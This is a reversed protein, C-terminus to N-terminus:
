LEARVASAIRNLKDLANDRVMVAADRERDSHKRVGVENDFKTRLDVLRENADDLKSRLARAEIRSEDLSALVEDRQRRLADREVIAEDRERDSHRRCGVEDDLKSRLQDLRENADDLKARLDSVESNAEDRDMTVQAVASRREEETLSEILQTALAVRTESDFDDWGAFSSGDVRVCCGDVTQSGVLRTVVRKSITETQEIEHKFETM